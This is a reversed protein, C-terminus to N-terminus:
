PTRFARGGGASEGPAGGLGHRGGAPSALAGMGLGLLLMPVLVIEPGSDADLAVLLVATGALMLFLGM